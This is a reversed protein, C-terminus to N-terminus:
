ALKASLDRFEQNLERLKEKGGRTDEIQKLERSIQTLRTKIDINRIEAIAKDLEKEAQEPELSGGLDKLYLRDFIEVVEAPLSKALVQVERKKEDAQLVKALAKVIKRHAPLLIMKKKKATVLRPWHDSQLGLAMVYEELVERRSQRVPAFDAQRQAEKSGLAAQAKEVEAEIAAETVRLREALLSIYHGRVIADSMKAMVPVLFRGIQRKGEVSREDHHQFAFSFLYDYVGVARKVQKRWNEPDKQAAEDPDKGGQVEVVKVAFGMKDALEIGRQAAANGAFDADLALVLNQTYRKLVILQDETLASGKIAVSNEVGAQYSSIMDLEGEVVVAQDAKRIAGRTVSLDYLLRSKRYVPTESTNIYKAEDDSPPIVRGAFGCVNAQYDRLPFMIRNRFRDYYGGRRNPSILGAKELLEPQYNKKGVLYKQLGDWGPPSFGIKFTELSKKAIGRGLIYDLAKKGVQHSTLLYHFYEAALHNIEYLIKKKEEEPSPQYRKLKVGAREALKRVAEGFELGEILMLFKFIDGGLNCGFCKFIQREPSVMFSPKNEAHFPCPAKQNRGAPKLTVYESVLDVISIKQKIEELQDM